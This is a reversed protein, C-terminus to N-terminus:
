FYISGINSKNYSATISYCNTKTIRLQIICNNSLSFDELQFGNQLQQQPKMLCTRLFLSLKNAYGNVVLYEFKHM